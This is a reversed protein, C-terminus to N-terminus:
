KLIIRLEWVSEKENNAIFINKEREWDQGV